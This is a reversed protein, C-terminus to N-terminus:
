AIAAAESAWTWRALNFVPSSTATFIWYGKRRFDVSYSKVMRVMIVFNQLWRM